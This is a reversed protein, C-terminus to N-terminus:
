DDEPIANLPGAQSNVPSVPWAPADVGDTTTTAQRVREAVQAEIAKMHSWHSSNMEIDGNALATLRAITLM